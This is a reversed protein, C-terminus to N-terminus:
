QGIQVRRAPDDMDQREVRDRGVDVDDAPRQQILVGLVLKRVRPGDRDAPGHHGQGATEDVEPTRLVPIATASVVAGAGTAAGVDPETGVTIASSTWMM